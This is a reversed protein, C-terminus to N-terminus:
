YALVYISFVCFQGVRRVGFALLFRVVKIELYECRFCMERVFNSNYLTMCQRYKYCMWQTPSVWNGRSAAM